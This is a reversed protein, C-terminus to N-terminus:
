GSPRDRGPVGRFLGNPTPSTCRPGATSAPQAGPEVEGGLVQCALQMGYCIGLVPIGLDFISRTAAAARGARLREGARRLPHDGEPEAGRGARGAPRAPRDPLLREARAGAPRHAARVALRLRLDPRTRKDHSIRANVVSACLVGLLGCEPNWRRSGTDSQAETTLEEKGTGDRRTHRGRRRGDRRRPLGARELAHLGAITTGGPSAVADKLAGPHQGTELVMKAAGSCRRPRWRRAGRRAAPRVRVGGDALAEIIVYVFAPGSGSLGPSPTSCTNRCASRRASRASCRESSPRRRRAHRDTGPAFGTASAGVLCPTNPMVRVLRTTDGSDTPSRAEADRGAAISVVLHAPRVAPKSKRSCRRGDGAAQGRAGARRM